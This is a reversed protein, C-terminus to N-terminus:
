KIVGFYTLGLGFGNRRGSLDLLRKTDCDLTDIEKDSSQRISLSNKTEPFSPSQERKINSVRSSGMAIQWMLHFLRWEWISIGLGWGLIVVFRGLLLWWGRLFENGM